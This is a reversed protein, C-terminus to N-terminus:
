ASVLEEPRVELPPEFTEREHRTAHELSAEARLPAALLGARADLEGVV